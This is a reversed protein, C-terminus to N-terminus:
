YEFTIHKKPNTHLFIFNHLRFKRPKMMTKYSIELLSSILKMGHSFYNFIFSLLGSDQFQLKAKDSKNIHSIMSKM